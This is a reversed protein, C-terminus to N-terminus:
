SQISRRLVNIARTTEAKRIASYRTFVVLCKERNVVLPKYTGTCTDSFILLSDILYLFMSPSTFCNPSNNFSPSCQCHRPSMLHHHQNGLLPNSPYAKNHSCCVRFGFWLWRAKRDEVADKSQRDGDRDGDVVM